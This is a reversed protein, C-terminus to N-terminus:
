PRPEQRIAALSRVVPKYRRIALPSSQIFELAAARTEFHGVYLAHFVQQRYLRNHVLVPVASQPSADLAARIENVMVLLEADRPARQSLLQVTFGQTSPAAVFTDTARMRVALSDDALGAALGAGLPAEQSASSPGPVGAGPQLGPVKNAPVAPQSIGGSVPLTPVRSKEAPTAPPAPVVSAISTAPLVAQSAAAQEVRPSQRGNGLWYGVGLALLLALVGPAWRWAPSHGWGTEGAFGSRRGFSPQSDNAARRVQDLGVLQVGEAYAALLSKDALMNLKRTRGGSAQVLLALAAADFLEGGQWGAKHLRFMLYASVEQANLPQLEFRHSIRDKVQRLQPAALLEDLEPQGFLVIKLLKHQTTELNSLLRIEELTTAPMSHAEDIVVVVRRGQAYREILVSELGALMHARNGQPPEPMLDNAIAGLIEDRDFVPNALYVTDSALPRLRELLMRSLMTKGMGIEGVVSVIGEDHMSAVILGELIDGRQGGTFFFGTDPTIRFPDTALGFHDLYLVSM